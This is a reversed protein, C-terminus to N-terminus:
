IHGGTMPLLNVQLCLQWTLMTCSCSLDLESAAKRVQNWVSVGKDLAERARKEAEKLEVETLKQASYM